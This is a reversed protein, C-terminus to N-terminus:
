VSGYLDRGLETSFSLYGCRIGKRALCVEYLLEKPFLPGIEMQSFYVLEPPTTDALFHILTHLDERTVNKPRPFTFAISDELTDERPRIRM